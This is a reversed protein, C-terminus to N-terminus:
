LGYSAPASDHGNLFAVVYTAVKEPHTLLMAHATGDIEVAKADPVLRRIQRWQNESVITDDNGRLFLVRSDLEALREYAHSQDALAGSRMLSLLSRGFGPMRLQDRFM